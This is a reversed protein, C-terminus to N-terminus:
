HMILLKNRKYQKTGSSFKPQNEKEQLVQLVQIYSDKHQRSEKQIEMMYYAVEKKSLYRSLMQRVVINLNDNDYWINSHLKQYPSKRSVTATPM